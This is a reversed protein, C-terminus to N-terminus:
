PKAIDPTILEVRAGTASGADIAESIADFDLSGDGALLVVRSARGELLQELRPRLEDRDFPKGDVLYSMGDQAQKVQVLVPRVGAADSANKSPLATDLGHPLAPAIVMFIILLVLLVDILPTVNIEASLGNSSDGTSFAM